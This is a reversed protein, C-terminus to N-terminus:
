GQRVRLAFVIVQLANTLYHALILPVARGFRLYYLAAILGFVSAWAIHVPGQYSHILGFLGASIVVALLRGSASSWVKWVRGLFVMRTVEEAAAGAPILLVVFLVLLGRNRALEMFLDRVSTDPAANPLLASFLGQSVVNAVIIVPCLVLAALLDRTLKGPKRNLQRPSEGCLFRLLLLAFVLALPSIVALYFIFGQLSVPQRERLQYAILGAYLPAVAAVAALM